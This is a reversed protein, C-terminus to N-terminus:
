AWSTAIPSLQGEGRVEQLRRETAITDEPSHRIPFDTHPLLVTDRYTKQGPNDQRSLGSAARVGRCPYLLRPSLRCRLVTLM